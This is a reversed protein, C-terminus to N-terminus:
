FKEIFVRLMFKPFAFMNRPRQEVVESMRIIM